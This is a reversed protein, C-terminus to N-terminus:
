NILEDFDHYAKVKEELDTPIPEIILRTGDLRVSVKGGDRIGRTGRLHAPVLRGRKDVSVTEEVVDVV